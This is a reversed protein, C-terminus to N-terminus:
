EEFELHPQSKDPLSRLKSMAEIIRDCGLEISDSSIAYSLRTNEDAGFASGPVVAVNAETLLYYALSKSDDIKMGDFECNYYASTNPFLYFAGQPKYCSIDPIQSLKDLMLDRRDRFEAVMKNVASEHGSLAEVAAKQAISNANSTSHSQVVGMAAIIERPGTAYGLRWGTMSYSKSVGNIIVARDRIHDGLSAVSYFKYDDYIVREYIEDAVIILGRDVAIECVELLQERSYAGGTPNNPNNIIIARTKNNIRSKLDDPTIRFGNEEYTPLLAPEGDALLVQQPYSVWYPVPIIVEDGPNLLSVFLNFLCHKGGCSVIVENKEYEVGYDKRIRKRIVEKLEPIGDNATYRTFNNDIAMKGAKKIDLPTNFDPQGASFDIIDVGAAKLEKAKANIRLTVSYELRNIRNSIM